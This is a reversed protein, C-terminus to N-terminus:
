PLVVLTSLKLVADCHYVDRHYVDHCSVQLLIELQEAHLKVIQPTLLDVKIFLGDFKLAEHKHLPEKATM